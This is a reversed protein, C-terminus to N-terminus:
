EELLSRVTLFRRFEDRDFSDVKWGETVACVITGPPIHKQFEEVLTGLSDSDTGEPATVLLIDRVPVHKNPFWAWQPDLSDRLDPVLVAMTGGDDNADM